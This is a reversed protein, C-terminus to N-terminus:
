ARLTTASPLGRSGQRTTSSSSTLREPRRTQLSTAKRPLFPSQRSLSNKRMSLHNAQASVGQWRKSAEAISSHHKEQTCQRKGGTFSTREVEQLTLYYIEEVVEPPLGDLSFGNWNGDVKQAKRNDTLAPHRHLHKIFAAHVEPDSLDITKPSLLPIHGWKGWIRGWVWEDEESIPQKTFYACLRELDNYLTKVNISYRRFSPDDSKVLACWTDKLWGLLKLRDQAVEFLIMIHLHLTLGTVQCEAKWLAGTFQEGYREKLALRVRDKLKKFEKLTPYTWQPLTLTVWFGRNVKALPDGDSIYPQYDLRRFIQRINAISNKSLSRIPKRKGGHKKRKSYDPKLKTSVTLGRESIYLTRNDIDEEKM